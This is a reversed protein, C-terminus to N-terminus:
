PSQDAHTPEQQFQLSQLAWLLIKPILNILVFRGFGL